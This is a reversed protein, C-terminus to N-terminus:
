LSNRSYIIFYIFLPGLATSWIVPQLSRGCSETTDSIHCEFVCTNALEAMNGHKEQIAASPVTDTPIIMYKCRDSPVCRGVQM